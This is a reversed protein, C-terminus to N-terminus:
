IIKRVVRQVLKEFGPMLASGLPEEIGELESELEKLLIQIKGAARILEKKNAPDLTPNKEFNLNTMYKVLVNDIAEDLFEEDKVPKAVKKPAAAQAYAEYITIDDSM